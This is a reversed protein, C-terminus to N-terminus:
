LGKRGRPAATKTTATKVPKPPATEEVDTETVGAGGDGELADVKAAVTPTLEDRVRGAEADAKTAFWKGSALRLAVQDRTYVNLPNGDADYITIPEGM